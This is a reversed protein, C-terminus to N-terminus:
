SLGVEAPKATPLDAAFVPTVLFLSLLLVLAQVIRM